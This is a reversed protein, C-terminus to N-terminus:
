VAKVFKEMRTISVNKREEAKKGRSSKIILVKKKSKAM